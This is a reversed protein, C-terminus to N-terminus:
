SCSLVQSRRRKLLKYFGQAPKDNTSDLDDRTRLSCIPLQSLQFTGAPSTLPECISRKRVGSGSGSPIKNSTDVHWLKNHIWTIRGNYFELIWLIDFTCGEALLLLPFNTKWSINEAMVKQWITSKDNTKHRGQQWSLLTNWMIFQSSGAPKMHSEPTSVNRLQLM